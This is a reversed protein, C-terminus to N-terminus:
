NWAANPWLSQAWVDTWCINLNQLGIWFERVTEAYQDVINVNGRWDTELEDTDVAKVKMHSDMGDDLSEKEIYYVAEM